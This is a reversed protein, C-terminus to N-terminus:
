RAEIELPQFQVGLTAYWAKLGAMERKARDSAQRFAVPRPATLAALQRLDFQELLGFCFAEPTQDVTANREVIEKLSGLSGHLEAGAIADPELATAVLAFLSSRPGVAVVTPAQSHSEQAWRAVAAVQAAQIGLPREGVTAVLLAFLYGHSDFKSEGFYFADIAVVRKGAALLREIEAVAAPSARGDDAVVLVTSKAGSPTFEVAPVTWADGIRLRWYNAKIKDKEDGGASQAQVAYDSARVVGRLQNRAAKQWAEAATKDTPLEASRPLDAMLRTAWTHFGANDAPLEVRLEEATKVEVGSDIETADFGADGAFFHDGLMRYLALRNDLGFNHDGPDTNVHARLRDEQGFLRYIPRVADLLPPLAHDAKFCCNDAANFTLLAPRPALLATLHDYDAFVGLDCPTQESDGLDSRYEARTRFGSYGAVPNSLTVRPDLSSIFITQWGGGSLGAVGVRSPDAHEHALLVDIGRKMALFFPAIGSTGCLDLQNMRSHVFDDTRLQGMGFWEVNLALMGRKAQNICRLQKYDAAKGNADHGNVNLMVPVKGSLTEPEYLLAPIWTGPLAEYRLKKIRYGPGGPITELWEVKTEADRWSAAEGRFVVNQLVSARIQEAHRRWEDATQVQPVRPVRAAAFAAAEVGATQPSIIERKLSSELFARDAGRIAAPTLLAVVLVVLSARRLM